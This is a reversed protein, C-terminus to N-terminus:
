IQRTLRDAAVSDICPWDSGCRCRDPGTLVFFHGTGGRCQARDKPGHTMRRRVDLINMIEAALAGFAAGILYIM